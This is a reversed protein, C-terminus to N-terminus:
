KEYSSHIVPKDDQGVRKWRKHIWLWEQPWKKVYEEIQATFSVTDDIVAQEGDADSLRVRPMIMMVHGKAERRIFVPLVAAGTKRAILAPMKSTWAPRGLFNVVYGEDKSVAQDMLIGVSGNGWLVSIIERLAGKKYVVKNGYKTRMREVIADIYVNNQRRAVVSSSKIQLGCALAMLEWNGCHGTISIIGRGEANAQLFNDIGEIRIDEMVKRGFGASMKAIEAFSEGLNELSKRATLSADVSSGLSSLRINEIAIRRRSGWIYYIAAGFMRGIRRSVSLPMIVFIMSFLILAAASLRELFGKM